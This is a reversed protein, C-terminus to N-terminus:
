KELLFLLPVNFRKRWSNESHDAGEFEKTIWNSENFGAGQLIIDVQQQLPKYQADLSETGYDFYLKHNAPSPLHNKFYNIFATPIPNNEIGDIGPWHTSLCAAGGFIRPYECIAYFSILGGMSSGAIFTNQLDPLTSLHEDVNPKLEETIFRLYNDSLPQRGLFHTVPNGQTDAVRRQDEDNMGYFAKTPFYELHRKPTNWIGVVITDKIQNAAFLNSMTEDVGWEQNDWTISSDFLMQGDHMYLVAYKKQASYGEPLWIDITRDDVFKSHYNEWRKISGASVKPFPDM